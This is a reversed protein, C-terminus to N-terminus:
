STCISDHARFELGLRVGFGAAWHGATTLTQVAKALVDSTVKTHYDAAILLAPIGFSECLDLRRKFHDFHASQAEGHSALLGGQYAAAAIKIGRDALMKRTDAASTSEIHQELKTLWIEVAPWGAESWAAVDDHFSAPMTCSQSI